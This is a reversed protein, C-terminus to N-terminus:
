KYLVKELRLGNPPLMTGSLNRQRISTNKLLHNIQKTSIKNLGVELLTGSLIRIMNYLFGNGHFTFIIHNISHLSKKQIDLSYITRIYSDKKTDNTFNYFNYTGTLILAASKM